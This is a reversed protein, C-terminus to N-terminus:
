QASKSLVMYSQGLVMMLGFEGFRLTPDEVVYRDGVRIVYVQRGAQQKTAPLAANYSDRAAACVSDTTVVQVSTDAVAPLQQHQRAKMAGADTSTVVWKTARLRMDLEADAARCASQAEVRSALSVALGFTLLM